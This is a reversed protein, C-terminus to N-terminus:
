DPSMPSLTRRGTRSLGDQIVLKREHFIGLRLPGFHVNWIENDVEELGVYEGGLVHSVNVWDSSWRIGGNLSVRRVEFYAPYDLTPMRQPLPRPSPHYRAAPPDQGLAEHPREHNYEQRFSNFRRQQSPLHGGPPRTAEAKLTKHM